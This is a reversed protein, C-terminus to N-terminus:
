HPSSVADGLVGAARLEEVDEGLEELVALTERGLEPDPARSALLEPVRPDGEVLERFTRFRGWLVEHEQFRGAVEACPRAGIWEGLAANIAERHAWREGEERLDAGLHDFSLGTAALLSRWQRPTLALVMVFV